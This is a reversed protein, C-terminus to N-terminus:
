VPTGGSGAKAKQWNFMWKAGSEFHKRLDRANNPCQIYHKGDVYDYSAKKIEDNTPEAPSVVESFNGKLKKIERELEHVIRNMDTSLTKCDEQSERLQKELEKIRDKDSM